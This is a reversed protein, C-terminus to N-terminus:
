PVAFWQAVTMMRGCRTSTARSWKACSVRVFFINWSRLASWTVMNKVQFDVDIEIDLDRVNRTNPKLKFVGYVEEGKTSCFLM